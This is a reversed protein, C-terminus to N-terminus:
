SESELVEMTESNVSRSLTISGATFEEGNVRVTDGPRLYPDMACRYRRLGGSLNYYSAGTLATIKTAYTETAHGSLSISQNKAGEYIDIRELDVRCIEERVSEIGDLLYAMEVVMQGHSRATVASAYIYVDPIVVSLYTPESQRLRTQFSSIPIEIDPIIPAENAGTLTFYFRKVALDSNQRLWDSWNVCGLDDGMGAADTFVRYGDLTKTVADGMGVADTVAERLYYGDVTDGMGVADTVAERLYYGDVTDGLGAGDLMAVLAEIDEAFADGLGAADAVTDVLHLPDFTAGLGVADTLTERLFYGDLGDGLGAGDVLIEALHLADIVDAITAADAIEAPIEAEEEAGFELLSDFLGHYTTKLWSASRASKSIRVSDIIGYGNHGYPDNGIRLAANSDITGAKTATATQASSDVYMRMVNSDDRLAAIHQFSGSPAANSEIAGEVNDVFISFRFVGSGTTFQGVYYGDHSTDDYRWVLRRDADTQVPDHVLEITFGGSFDLAASDAVSIYDNSGDFDIAKGFKGDVLDGSTMSGASTGHRANSTSDKIANSGGSPDQGMHWVGVYNSDWVSQAAADTTDGVYTTNDAQSSDYYLYLDTDASESISPLKVHLWAKESADDWREIEVYCQTTGDDTTVAIKKRNADSTLEDFVCSVDDDSIGSAASLYIPVPFNSLAADVQDSEVTIKIRKAWGSLWGM